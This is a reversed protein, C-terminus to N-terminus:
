LAAAVAVGGYLKALGGVWGGRSCGVWRYEDHYADFLLMKLPGEPNGQPPPIREVVAPLVTELGLGTKASVHLCEHPEIDFAEKLQQAVRQLLLLLAAPHLTLPLSVHPDIDLAGKLQQAVRQALAATLLTRIHSLSHTCGSRAGWGVRGCGWGGM